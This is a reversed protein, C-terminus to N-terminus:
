LRLPKNYDSAFAQALIEVLMIVAPNVTIGIFSSVIAIKIIENASFASSAPPYMCLVSGIPTKFCYSM